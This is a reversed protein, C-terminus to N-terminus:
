PYRDHTRRPSSRPRHARRPGAIPVPVAVSVAGAILDIEAEFSAPAAARGIFFRHFARDHCLAVVLAAAAACDADPSIRGLEREALLYREVANGAFFGHPPDHAAMRRRIAHLLEMESFAAAFLPVLEDLVESVKRAFYRLNGAVTGSGARSPLDHLPEFAVHAHRHVAQALLALRDDFYNYLTGTGLGAEEAIARTSAAALGQAAIVRHAADLIHARVADQEGATQAIVDAPLPRPM